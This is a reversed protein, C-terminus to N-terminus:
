LGIHRKILELLRSAERVNNIIEESNESDALLDKTKEIQNLETLVRIIRIEPKEGEVITKARGTFEKFINQLPKQIIEKVEEEKKLAVEKLSLTPNDEHYHKLTPLDEIKEMIKNHKEYMELFLEEHHLIGQRDRGKGMLRYDRTDTISEARLLDFMMEKYKRKHGDMPKEVGLTGKEIMKLIQETQRFGEEKSQKSDGIKLLSYIGKAGIYDLYDKMIEFTNYWKEPDGKKAENGFLEEIQKFELEDQDRLNSVTLYKALPNYGLIKDQDFQLSTELMRIKKASDESFEDQLVGTLFTEKNLRKILMARRNGDIIIGDATIIGAEKQGNKELSESTLKNGSLSSEWLYNSIKEELNSDYIPAIGPTAASDSSMEINIRGNYQNFILYKTPIRFVPIKVNIEDGYNIIREGVPVKGEIFRKIGQIREERPLPM